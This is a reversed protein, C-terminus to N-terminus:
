NMYSVNLGTVYIPWVPPTNFYGPAFGESGKAYYNLTWDNLYPTDPDQKGLLDKRVIIFTCGAPGMNKQAGGYIVGFRNWDIDFTGINSSCDGVVVMDKPIMHWPFHPNNVIELGHVTENLCIHVFSAEPDIKWTSPDSM